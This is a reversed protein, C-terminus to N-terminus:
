KQQKDDINNLKKNVNELNKNCNTIFDKMETNSRTAMNCNM